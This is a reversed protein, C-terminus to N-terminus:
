IQSLCELVADLGQSSHERSYLLLFYLSESLKVAVSYQGLDESGKLWELMVQDSKM